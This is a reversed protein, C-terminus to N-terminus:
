DCDVHLLHKGCHLCRFLYGQLSGNGLDELNEQIWDDLNPDELVEELVGLAKLDEYGVYGVFACFDDCHARWYEQQWGCYGPTRCTLEELKEPDSVEDVSESDQFAGDFKEAAAGSAICSPCLNEVDEVSYFPGEYTVLTEKGCCPCLVAQERRKFVETKFPDPHYKFVPTEM